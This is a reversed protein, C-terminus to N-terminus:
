IIKKLFSARHEPTVGHVMIKQRHMATGYGKHKILEYNPYYGDAIELAQDRAVKALISAASIEPHLADGGKIAQYNLNINGSKESDGLNLSNLKNKQIDDLLINLSNYDISNNFDNNSINLKNLKNLHYLHELYASQLNQHHQHNQHNQYSGDVEALKLDLDLDLNLFAPMTKLLRETTHTGDILISLNSLGLLKKSILRILGKLVGNIALQMALLSANLINFREINAVNVYAIHYISQEVIQQFLVERQAAKLQKSDNLHPLDYNELLIVAAAYVPGFLPGRGAEDVGIIM